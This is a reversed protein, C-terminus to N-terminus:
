KTNKLARKVLYSALSSLGGLVLYFASYIYLEPTLDMIIISFCLPFFLPILFILFFLHLPDRGVFLGIGVSLTPYLVFFLLFASGMFSTADVLHMFLAPLPLLVSLILVIAIFTGRHRTNM